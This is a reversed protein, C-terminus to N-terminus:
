ARGTGHCKPCIDTKRTILKVGAGINMIRYDLGRNSLEMVLWTSAINVATRIEFEPKYIEMLMSKKWDERLIKM